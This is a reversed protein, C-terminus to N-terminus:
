FHGRMVLLWSGEVTWTMWMGEPIAVIVSAILNYCGEDNTWHAVIQKTGNTTANCNASSKTIICLCISEPTNNSLTTPDKLTFNSTVSLITSHATERRGRLKRM